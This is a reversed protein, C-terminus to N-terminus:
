DLVIDGSIHRIDFKQLLADAIKRIVDPSQTPDGSGVIYLDGNIEGPTTSSFYFSTPYAHQEE